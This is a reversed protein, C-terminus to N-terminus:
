FLVPSINSMRCGACLTVGPHHSPFSTCGRQRRGAAESLVLPGARGRGGGAGVKLPFFPCITEQEMPIQQTKSKHSIHPSLQDFTLPLSDSFHIELLFHSNPFCQNPNFTQQWQIQWRGAWLSLCFDLVPDDPDSNTGNTQPQLPIKQM